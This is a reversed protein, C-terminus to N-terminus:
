AAGHFPKTTSWASAVHVDPGIHLPCEFRLFRPPHGMLFWVSKVRRQALRWVDCSKQVARGRNGRKICRQRAVLDDILDTYVLDAFLAHPLSLIQDIQSFLGSEYHRTRLVHFPAATRNRNGVLVRRRNRSFQDMAFKDHVEPGARSNADRWVEVSSVILQLEHDFLHLLDTLRFTISFMFRRPSRKLAWCSRRCDAAKM